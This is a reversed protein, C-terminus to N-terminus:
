DALCRLAVVFSVVALLVGTIALLRSPLCCQKLRFSLNGALPAVKTQDPVAVEGLRHLGVRFWPGEETDVAEAVKKPKVEMVYAVRVNFGVGNRYLQAKQKAAVGSLQNVLVSFGGTSEDLLNAPFVCSGIALECRQGSDAVMCRPSKRDDRNPKEKPTSSPLAPMVPDDDVVLMDQFTPAM